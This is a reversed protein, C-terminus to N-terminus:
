QEWYSCYVEERIGLKRGAINRIWQHIWERIKKERFLPFLRSCGLGALNQGKKSLQNQKRFDKDNTGQNIGDPYYHYEPLTVGWNIERFAEWHAFQWSGRGEIVEAKKKQQGPSSWLPVESGRSRQTHKRAWSSNKPTCSGETAQRRMDDWKIESLLFLKGKSYLNGKSIDM